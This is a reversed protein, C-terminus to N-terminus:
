AATNSIPRLQQGTHAQSWAETQTLVWLSKLASVFTQQILGSLNYMSGSPSIGGRKLIAPMGQPCQAM